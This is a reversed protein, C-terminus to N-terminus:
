TRASCIPGMAIAAYACLPAEYGYVPVSNGFYTPFRSNLLVFGFNEATTASPWLRVGEGYLLRTPTVAIKLLWYLPFLAVALYALVALRHALFGALRLGPTGGAVRM